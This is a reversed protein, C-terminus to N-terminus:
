GVSLNRAKYACIPGHSSPLSISTKIQSAAPFTTCTISIGYSRIANGASLDVNITKLGSQRKNTFSLLSIWPELAKKNCVTKAFILQTM